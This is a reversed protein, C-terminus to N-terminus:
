LAKNVMESETKLVMAVSCPKFCGESGVPFKGIQGMKERRTDEGGHQM